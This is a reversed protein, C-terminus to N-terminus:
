AERKSQRMGEVAWKALEAFEADSLFWWGTSARDEKVRLWNADALRSILGKIPITAERKSEVKKRMLRDVRAIVDGSWANEGSRSGCAGSGATRQADFGCAELLVECEREGKNGKAKASRHTIRRKVETATQVQPTDRPGPESLSCDESCTIWAKARKGTGAKHHLRPADCQPCTIDKGFDDKRTTPTM